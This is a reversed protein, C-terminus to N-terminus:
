SEDRESHRVIRDIERLQDPALVPTPEEALLERVRQRAKIEITEASGPWPMHQFLESCFIHDRYQELTHARTLFEGGPGVVDILERALTERDIRIPKLMHKVYAAIENDIVLQAPSFTLANEIHGATGIGVAGALIPSLISMAKDVGNQVDFSCADTKLGHVGCPCGYFEGWLQIKAALIANREASAYRFLGSGMDAFSPNVDISMVANEDVSYGLLLGGLTEALGLALVAAPTVPATAGGCPMTDLSQPLGLRVYEMLMEAMNKDLCLPSRAEAYGVLVPRERLAQASGAVVEAIRTIAAIDRIAYTEIGGLKRTWKVLEAAMRVPRLPAPIAQDAVPLGTFDIHELRDALVIADRVDRAAATRRNGTLDHIFCCFGGTSVSFDRHIKYPERRFRIHSFRVSMRAPLRDADDFSKQMRDVYDQVVHAPFRVIENSEDACCGIAALSARAKASLIRMGTKALIDLATAHIAQMDQLTLHRIPETTKM